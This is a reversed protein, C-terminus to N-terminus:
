ILVLNVFNLTKFFGAARLKKSGGRLDAGTNINEFLNKNIEFQPLFIQFNFFFTKSM